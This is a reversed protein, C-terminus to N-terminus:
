GEGGVGRGSAASPRSHPDATGFVARWLRGVVEIRGANQAPEVRAFEAGDLRMVHQIRRYERYIDAAELALRPELLGLRAAITLLGINGANALLEPHRGAEALVLFQVVFEIDVMGGRDHKLDFLGSPNPHGQLMRGRMALVEAALQQRDRPRALVQRRVQEIREGLSRDGACARARTLAQHEWAWAGHGDVNLQYRTFADLSTVLLGANGNPRLRLDVDFLV